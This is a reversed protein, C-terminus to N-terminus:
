LRFWCHIDKGYASCRFSVIQQNSKLDHDISDNNQKRKDLIKNINRGTKLM